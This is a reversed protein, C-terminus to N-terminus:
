PGALDRHCHVAHQKEVLQGFEITVHELHQTFREFGPPDRDRARRPLGVKRCAKLEHRRHIWAWATEEAVIGSFTMARGILHRTVPALNRPWQEVADVDM